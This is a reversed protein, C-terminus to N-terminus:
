KSILNIYIYIYIHTHTQINTYIWLCIIIRSILFNHEGRVGRMDCQEKCCGIWQEKSEIIPVAHYTYYVVLNSVHYEKYTDWSVPEVGIWLLCSLLGHNAMRYSSSLLSSSSVFLCVCVCVCISLCISLYVVIYAHFKYLYWTIVM